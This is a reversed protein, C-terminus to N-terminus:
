GKLCEGLLEEVNACQKKESVSQALNLAERKGYGMNVLCSVADDIIPTRNNTKKKTKAKTKTKSKRRSPRQPYYKNTINITPQPTETYSDPEKEVVTVGSRMSDFVLQLFYMAIPFLLAALFLLALDSNWTGANQM